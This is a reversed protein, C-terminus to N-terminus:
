SGRWSTLVTRAPIRRPGSCSSKPWRTSGWTSSARPGSDPPRPSPGIRPPWRRGPPWPRRAAVADCNASAWSCTSKATTAGPSRWDPSDSGRGVTTGPTSPKGPWPWNRVGPSRAPGIGDSARSWPWCVRDSGSGRGSRAGVGPCAASAGPVRRGVWATSRRTTRRMRERGYCSCPPPALMRAQAMRALTGGARSPSGDGDPHDRGAEARIAWQCRRGERGIRDESLVGSM